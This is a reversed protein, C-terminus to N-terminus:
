GGVALDGSAAPSGYTILAPRRARQCRAQGQGGEVQPAPVAAVIQRHPLGGCVKGVGGGADAEVPEEGVGM